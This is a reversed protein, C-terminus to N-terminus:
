ERQKHSIGVHWLHKENSQLTYNHNYSTVATAEFPQGSHIIKPWPVNKAVAAITRVGVDVDVVVVDVVVDVVSAVDSPLLM